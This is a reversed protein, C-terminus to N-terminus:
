VGSVERVNSLFLRITTDPLTDYMRSAVASKLYHGPSVTLLRGSSLRCVPQRGAPLLRVALHRASISPSEEHLRLPHRRREVALFHTPPSPSMGRRSLSLLSCPLWTGALRHSSPSPAMRRRSHTSQSPAM